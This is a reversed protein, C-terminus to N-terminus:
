DCLIGTACVLVTCVESDARTEPLQTETIRTDLDGILEDLDTLDTPEMTNSM